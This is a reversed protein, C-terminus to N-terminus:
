ETKQGAANKEGPAERKTTAKSVQFLNSLPKVPSGGIMPSARMPFSGENSLRFNTGGIVPGPASPIETESLSDVLSNVMVDTLYLVSTVYKGM